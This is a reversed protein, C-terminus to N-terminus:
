RPVVRYAAPRTRRLRQDYGCYKRDQKRHNCMLFDSVRAQHQM